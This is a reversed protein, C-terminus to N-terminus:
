AVSGLLMFGNVAYQTAMYVRYPVRLGARDHARIAKNCALALGGTGAGLMLVPILSIQASISAIVVAGVAVASVGAAMRAARRLGLAVALTRRGALRDGNIDSFDKTSSAAAVWCSLGAAFVTNWPTIDGRVLWGAAYTLGAGLGITAAASLAHQKLSPGLSYGLGLLAMVSALAGCAPSDWWCLLIGAATAVTSAVIARDVPLAGSALPRTSHNARDGDLDSLGNVVYIAGTM